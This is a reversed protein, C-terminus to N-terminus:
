ANTVKTRSLRLLLPNVFRDSLDKCRSLLYMALVLVDMGLIKAIRNRRRCVAMAEFYSMNTHSILIHLPRWVSPMLSFLLNEARRRAQALPARFGSRLEDFNSISLDAIIDTNKKREAKFQEFVSQLNSGHQQLCELLSLCDDFSSNMGQGYFPIIGHAADGILVVKGGHHWKQTRITQFNSPPLAKLSEEINPVLSAVDPFERHFYETIFGNKSFDAEKALPYIFNGTFSGDPNPLAFMMVDGRPWVHLSRKDLLSTGNVGAPIKVERYGWDLFTQSYDFREGKLLASRVSSFAGDAGIVFDAPELNLAERSDCDVATVVGTEKCVHNVDVNFRIDISSYRKAVRLLTTNMDSRRISHLIHKAPDGYAFFRNPEGPMHCMRGAVPLTKELVEDLIGATELATEGRKSITLNFSRGNGAGEGLKEGQRELVCINKVGRQALLIAMLTGALGAGIIVVRNTTIDM